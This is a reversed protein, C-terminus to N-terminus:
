NHPLQTKRGCRGWREHPELYHDDLQEPTVDVSSDYLWSAEHEDPAAESGDSRKSEIRAVQESQLDPRGGVDTPKPDLQGLVGEDPEAKGRPHTKLLNSLIRTSRRRSATSRTPVAFSTAGSTSRERQTVSEM